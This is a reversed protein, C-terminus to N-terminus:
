KSRIDRRCKTWLGRYKRDAGLIFLQPLTASAPKSGPLRGSMFKRSKRATDSFHFWLPQWRNCFYSRRLQGFSDRSSRISNKYSTGHWALKSQFDGDSILVLVHAKNRRGGTKFMNRAEGFAKNMYTGGGPHRLQKFVAHLDRINQTNNFFYVIEISNAIAM